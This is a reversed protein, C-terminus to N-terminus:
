QYDRFREWVGMQNPKPTATQGLKRWPMTVGHFDSGVSVLLGHQAICRDIMAVTSIPEANPLEVADGGLQGFEDILRRVRTASLGYRTPHALVALGGCTHILRVADAMSLTQMAVYAPKNDALYKDFADQISKVAGM